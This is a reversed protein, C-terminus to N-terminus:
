RNRMSSALFALVQPPVDGLMRNQQAQQQQPMAASLLGQQPAMMQVPQQMAMPAMRHGPSSPIFVGDGTPNGGGNNHGGNNNHGGGHNNGHNNGNGSGPGAFNANHVRSPSYIERLFDRYKDMDGGGAMQMGTALSSIQGPMMPMVSVNPNRGGNNNNNGTPKPFPNGIDPAIRM